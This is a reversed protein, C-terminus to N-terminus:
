EPTCIVGLPNTCKVSFLVKNINHLYAAVSKKPAMIDDKHNIYHYIFQFSKYIHQTINRKWTKNDENEPHSQPTTNPMININDSHIVMM